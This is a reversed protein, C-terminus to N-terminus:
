FVLPSAAVDFQAPNQAIVALALFSVVFDYVDPELGGREHLYWVNRQTLPQRVLRRITALLPHSRKGGGGMKYAALLILSSEADTTGFTARVALLSSLIGRAVGLPEGSIRGGDTQALVAYILLGPELGEQRAMAGLAASNRQISTLYEALASSNRYSGVKRNIDDLAKDSFSYPKDDSSIRQMVAIAVKEVKESAASADTATTATGDNTTSRNSSDNPQDSGSKNGEQDAVQARNGRARSQGGPRLILLLLGAAIVVALGVTAAVILPIGLGGLWQQKSTAGNNLRGLQPSSPSPSSYSSQPQSRPMAPPSAARSDEPAGHDSIAVTIDCIGALTIQDGDQLVATAVVPRGNVETGNQSGCDTIQVVGEFSEIVAHRRSLSSNPIALDNEPTRGITYRTSPISVERANGFEDSITLTVRLINTQWKERDL